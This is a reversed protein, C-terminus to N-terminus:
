NCLALNVLHCDVALSSERDCLRFLVVAWKMRNQKVYLSMICGQEGQGWDEEETAYISFPCPEKIRQHVYTLAKSFACVATYTYTDACLVVERACLRKM